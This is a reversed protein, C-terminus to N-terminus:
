YIIHVFVKKNYWIKFGKKAVTHIYNIFSDKLGTLVDWDTAAIWLYTTQILSDTDVILYNNPNINYNHSNFKHFALSAYMHLSKM